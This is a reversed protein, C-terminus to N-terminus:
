PTFEHGQDQTERQRRFPAQEAQAIALEKQHSRQMTRALDTLNEGAELKTTYLRTELKARSIQVNTLQMDQMTEHTLIFARPVTMGQGKHTTVAYSLKLSNYSRIGITRVRKEGDIQVTITGLPANVHSVTALMGNQLGMAKANKTFLVRDGQHINDKGVTVSQLGSICGTRIRDAQIQRNLIAADLRTGTFILQDKPNTLGGTTKWDNLLAQRAHERDDAVHLQGQDLFHKLAKQTQGAIVDRVAQRDAEREQRIIETLKVDHGLRESIAKFAGGLTVAQLQQADGVLVLTAGSRSVQDMVRACIRTDMMGSEDVILISKSDIQLRGKEVNWLWSHITSSQIGAESLGRAAKASPAMGYVKYNARQWADQAVQLMFTKGTGPLGTVTKVQDTGMTLHRVARAQEEKITPKAAIAAEVSSNSLRAGKGIGKEVQRLM